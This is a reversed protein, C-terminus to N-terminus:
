EACDMRILGDEDIIVSGFSMKANILWSVKEPIWDITTTIEKGMALGSATPHGFFCRRTNPGAVFPLGTFKMWMFGRWMGIPQAANNSAPGSSGRFESSVFEDQSLTLLDTVQAPGIVAWRGEDPVDAEDLAERAEDVKPVTLGGGTTITNTTLDWSDTIIQDTKRGLAWAASRTYNGRHDENTKLLDLEDAYEPAYHDTLTAVVNDHQLNMPTVDAHRAKTNAVGAGLKPFRYTEGGVGSVNRLLGRLKSGERQYDLKTESGFLAIFSNPVSVAM